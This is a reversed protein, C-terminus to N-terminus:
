RQVGRKEFAARNESADFAANAELPYIRDILPKLTDEMVLEFLTLIDDRM